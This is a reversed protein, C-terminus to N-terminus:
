FGELLLRHRKDNLYKRCGDTAHGHDFIRILVVDRNVLSMTLSPLRVVRLHFLFISFLLRDGKRTGFPPLGIFRIASATRATNTAHDTISKRMWPTIRLEEYSAVAESHLGISSIFMDAM